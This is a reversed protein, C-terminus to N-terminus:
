WALRKMAFYFCSVNASVNVEALHQCPLLGMWVLNPLGLKLHPESLGVGCVIPTGPLNPCAM